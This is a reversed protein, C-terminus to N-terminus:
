PEGIAPIPRLRPERSALERREREVLFASRAIQMKQHLTRPEFDYARESLTSIQPPQACWGSEDLWGELWWAYKPLLTSGFARVCRYTSKGTVRKSFVSNEALHINVRDNV